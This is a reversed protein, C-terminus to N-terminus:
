ASDAPTALPGRLVRVPELTLLGIGEVKELADILPQLQPRRDIIEIVVPLDASFLVEATHLRTSHGSGQSGRFVTLGALMLSRAKRVIAQHLPLEHYRKDEGVYIRLRAFEDPMM